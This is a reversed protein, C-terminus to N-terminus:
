HIKVFSLWEGSLDRLDSLHIILFSQIFYCFCNNYFNQFFTNLSNNIKRIRLMGPMSQPLFYHISFFTTEPRPEKLSYCRQKQYYSHRNMKKDEMEAGIAVNGTIVIFNNGSKARRAPNGKM